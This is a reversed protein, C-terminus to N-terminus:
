FLTIVKKLKDSCLMGALFAFTCLLVIVIMVPVAGIRLVEGVAEAPASFMIAFFESLLYMTMSMTFAEPGDNALYIVLPPVLWFLVTFIEYQWKNQVGSIISLIIWTLICVIFVFMRYINIVSEPLSEEFCLTGAAFTIIFSIFMNGCFNYPIRAGKPIKKGSM